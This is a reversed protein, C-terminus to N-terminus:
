RRGAAHAACTPVITVPCSAHDLVAKGVSGVAVRELPGLRRSGLVVLGSRRSDDELTSAAPAGPTVLEVELDPAVLRAQDAAELTAARALEQRARAGEPVPRAQLHSLGIAGIEPVAIHRQLAGLAGSGLDLVLHFGDATVLYSSAASDPGPVSGSCGIVTLKM